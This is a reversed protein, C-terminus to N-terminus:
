TRPKSEKRYVKRYDRITDDSDTGFHRKLIGTAYRTPRVGWQRPHCILDRDGNDFPSRDLISLVDFDPHDQRLGEFSMRQSKGRLEVYLQKVEGIVKVCLEGKQAKLSRTPSTGADHVLPTAAKESHLLGEPKEVSHQPRSRHEAAQAEAVALLQEQFQHWEESKEFERRIEPLVSGDWHCIIERLKRGSQDYGERHYAEITLTRLFEDAEARIRTVTWLSGLKCAQQAFAWFVRLIYKRLNAEDEAGPGYPSWAVHERDRELDRTAKLGEAEVRARAQPPFDTPYEM